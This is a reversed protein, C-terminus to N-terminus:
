SGHRSRPRAHRHIAPNGRVIALVRQVLSNRPRRAEQDGPCRGSRARAAAQVAPAPEPLEIKVVRVPEPAPPSKRSGNRCRCPCAPDGPRLRRAARFDRRQSRSLHAGDTGGSRWVNPAPRAPPFEREQRLVRRVVETDAHDYGSVADLWHQYLPANDVRNLGGPIRRTLVMSIQSGFGASLHLVYQVPYRGGRSLNLKGLDPDVEKFNPVPPVIGHELIKVTIVDEVGVGMPHGTFGKTNAVIIESAAEGFTQRLAVVEAAASGGRAPTFTEHSMFVIQPAMAARHLGFRREAATLLDEMVLAIHDVDLRTGHYASNRTESSLVEVIGRIGRERAADESEVVLACAGMGLITGHRRRDFPLAAEEVRDDTAAAGTALFGAGVWEMLRDSTVDDAGIVIVRRCRGARIWDEAIGIAQTTSACAANVHTNPGRAGVYEAFQSHGM